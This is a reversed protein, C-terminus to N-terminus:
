RNEASLANKRRPCEPRGGERKYLRKIQEEIEGVAEWDHMQRMQRVQGELMDLHEWPDDTYIPPVAVDMYEKLDLLDDESLAFIENHGYGEHKRHAYREHLKGEFLRFATARWAYKCTVSPNSSRFQSLRKKWNVSSGIKHLTSLKGFLGLDFVYVYGDTM